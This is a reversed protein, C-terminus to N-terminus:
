RNACYELIVESFVGTRAVEAQESDTAVIQVQFYASSFTTFDPIDKESNLTLTFGGSSSPNMAVATWETKSSSETDKLRFFLVVSYLSPDDGEVRITIDKPGCGAGRYYFSSTSFTPDSLLVEVIEPTPTDTPAATPEHTPAELPLEQAAPKQQFVVQIPTSPGYDSGSKKGRVELLYTGFAPPTWDYEGLFLTGYQAGGSGTQSPSVEAAVVGNVSLQMSEIGAFSACHFMLHLPDLNAYSSNSLPQDWWCPTEPPPTSTAPPNCASLITATLLLLTWLIKKM